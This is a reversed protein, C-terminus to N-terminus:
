KIRKWVLDVKGGGSGEAVTWKMEDETITLSRKQETGTWNPFTSAEVKLIM